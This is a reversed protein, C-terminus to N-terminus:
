SPYHYRSTTGLIKEECESQTPLYMGCNWLALLLERESTNLEKPNGVGFEYYIGSFTRNQWIPNYVIGTYVKPTIEINELTINDMAGTSINTNM